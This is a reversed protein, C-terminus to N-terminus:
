KEWLIYVHGLFSITLLTAAWRVPHPSAIPSAIFIGIGIGGVAYVVSNYLPHAAFYKSIKKNM